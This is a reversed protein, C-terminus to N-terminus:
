SVCPGQVQLVLATLVVFSLRFRPERWWRRKGTQLRLGRDLCRHPQAGLVAGDVDVVARVVDPDLLVLVLEAM